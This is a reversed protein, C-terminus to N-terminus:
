ANLAREAVNQLADPIPNDGKLSWVTQVSAGDAVSWQYLDIRLVTQKRGIGGVTVDFFRNEAEAVRETRM